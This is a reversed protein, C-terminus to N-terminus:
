ELEMDLGSAQAKRHATLCMQYEITLRHFLDTIGAKLKNWDEESVDNTYNEPKVAAIVSQVYDIMRMAALQDSEAVKKGGLGLVIAAHEWWARHLLRGPPLRAVQAAISSVLANIEAVVVPLHEAARVQVEAVQEATAHSKWILNKGFRAIEFPGWAFYDDPKAFKLGSKRRKGLPRGM